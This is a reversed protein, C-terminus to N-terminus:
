RGPIRINKKFCRVFYEEMTEIEPNNYFVLHGIDHFLCGLILDNRIPDNEDCLEEALLACQTAHELQTVQEGIYGNNGFKKYLDIAREM